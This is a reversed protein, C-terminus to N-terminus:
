FNWYNKWFNVPPFHEELLLHLLFFSFSFRFQESLINETNLIAFTKKVPKMLLLQLPFDMLCCLLAVLLVLEVNTM